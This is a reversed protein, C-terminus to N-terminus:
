EAESFRFVAVFTLLLIKLDLWLSWNEIYHNDWEARDALSTKGRLGHVQAWGTIGAKVRHREGYRYVYDEFLEVYEPREPRPGVLSMEGRLVNFLQPLEDIATRRLFAGARTRRDEGEVGGPGTDPPRVVEPAEESAPAAERMTRLKLIDFEVGDRGVRRQRYVIPRGLSLLVALAGAALLPSVLVILAGAVVRDAAYKIRFQWGKPNSPHVTTLPLGGLHDVSLRATVKEYLRPVLSVAVGREECRKVVGLLVHHPATSFAVIVHGIGHSEIADDLDWSAGLIPLPSEHELEDLPEKDLFGVPRLGLEPHDLLRQATLCGVRGAGVILTAVGAEGARRAAAQSWYLAARGACLYVTAFAWLRVTEAAVNGDGGVLVRATILIMAGTTTAFLLGRVDDLLQLRLRPAYMGRTVLLAGVIPAFVFLWTSPTSPAGGLASGLQAALVAAGLMVGDLLACAATWGPRRVRHAHPHEAVEPLPAVRAPAPPAHAAPSAATMFNVDAPTM